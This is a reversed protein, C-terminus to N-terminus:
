CRFVSTGLIASAAGTRGGKCVTQPSCRISEEAATEESGREERGAEEGAEESAALHDKGERQASKKFARISEVGDIQDAHTLAAAVKHMM